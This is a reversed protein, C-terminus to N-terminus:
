LVHARRLNHLAATVAIVAPRLRKSDGLSYRYQLAIYLVITRVRGGIDTLIDPSIGAAGTIDAARRRRIYCKVRNLRVAPINRM